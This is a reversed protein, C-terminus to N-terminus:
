QTPAPPDQGVWRHMEIADAYAGDERRVAWRKRGETEFGLKRYLALATPNDTFVELRLVTIHQEARAWDILARMMRKGLGRSRWDSLLSIGVTACHRTRLGTPAHAGCMGVIRGEAWAALHLNGPTELQSAIWQRESEVTPLPDSPSLNLGLATKRVADLYHLAEVAHDVELTRLTVSAGNVAGISRPAVRSM